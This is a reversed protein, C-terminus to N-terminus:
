ASLELRQFGPWGPVDRLANEWVKAFHEPDLGWRERPLHRHIFGRVIWLDGLLEYGANSIRPPREDPWVRGAKLLEYSPVAAPDARLEELASRDSPSFRM